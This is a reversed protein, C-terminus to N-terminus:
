DELEELMMKFRKGSKNNVVVLMDEEEVITWDGKDNKLHLDGTYVNAWRFSASGLNYTNDVAPIMDFVSAFVASGSSYINGETRIGTGGEVWLGGSVLTDGGFVATGPGASSGSTIARNHSGIGGSVYFVVDSGFFRNMSDLGFYANGSTIIDGAFVATGSAHTQKGGRVGSVFLFIDSGYTDAYANSADISISGSSKAKQGGDTFVSSGLGTSSPASSAITIQGNSASTITINLGENLYPLGTATEFISGSITGWSGKDSVGGSVVLTGSIFTDGGFVSAGRVSSKRSGITGSVFFATDNYDWESISTPSSNTGSLFYVRDTTNLTRMTYRGSADGYIQFYGADYGTNFNSQPCDFNISSDASVRLTDDADIYLDTGAVNAHMEIDGGKDNFYLYDGSALSISAGGSSTLHLNGSVVVDGGFVSTGKRSTGRSGIAGSIYFTTDNFLAPDPSTKAGGSNILVLDSSSLVIKSGSLVVTYPTEPVGGGIAITDSTPVSLNM